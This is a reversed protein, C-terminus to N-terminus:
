LYKRSPILASFLIFRVLSPHTYIHPTLSHNISYSPDSRGGRKSWGAGLVGPTEAIIARLDNMPGCGCEYNDISSLGSATMQRGLADLDGRRWAAVGAAVRSTESFYHTARRRQNDPLSSGHAEFAERTVDCLLM